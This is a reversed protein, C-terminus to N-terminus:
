LWSESQLSGNAFIVSYLYL